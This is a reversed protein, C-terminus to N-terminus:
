PTQHSIFTLVERRRGIDALYDTIQVITQNGQEMQHISAELQRAVADAKAHVDANSAVMEALSGSAKQTGELVGGVSTVITDATRTIAQVHGQTEVSLKRVEGAVVAFARGADGARAAQISANISLVGTQQAIDDVTESISNIAMLNDSLAKVQGYIQSNAQTNVGITDTFRGLAGLVDALQRRNNDLEGKVQAYSEMLERVLPVGAIIRELIHQHVETLISNRVLRREVFSSQFAGYHVPFQDIVPDRFPVGPVVAHFVLATLTENVNVGLLEGFTSFGAVPLGQFVDLQGLSPGNNLRRLICDSVIAGVPTPKNQLYARWDDRTTALFNTKKLLHLRDGVEVDCYFSVTESGADINSVSRVYDRGHIEVGFALDSMRAGLESPSCKLTEALAGTFSRTALTAEDLVHTVKRFATDGGLVVFSPGAKEFNRSRFVGFRYAPAVQAVVVVAHNERLHSGDYIQTRHFDLLGGASGGLLLCPLKGSQYVAEMFANEALSVGDILTYAFTNTAEVVFPLSLASLSAAIASVRQEPTSAARGARLDANHLPVAAVHVASLLEDSFSQFVVTDWSAGTALYPSSRGPLSCLEGATTTMVLPIPAPVQARVQRCLQDFNRHPSVFGLVLAPPRDGFWLAERLGEGWSGGERVTVRVVEGM